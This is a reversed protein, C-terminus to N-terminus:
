IIFNGKLQGPEQVCDRMRAGKLPGLLHVSEGLMAIKIM